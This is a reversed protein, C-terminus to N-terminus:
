HREYPGFRHWARQQTARGFSSAAVRPPLNHISPPPSLAWCLRRYLGRVTRTLGRAVNLWYVCGSLILFTSLM